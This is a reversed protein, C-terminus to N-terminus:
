NGFIDFLGIFFAQNINDLIRQVAGDKTILGMGGRMFMSIKEGFTTGDLSDKIINVLGKENAQKIYKAVYPVLLYVGLKDLRQRNKLIEETVFVAREHTSMMLGHVGHDYCFEIIEMIRSVDSFYAAKQNGTQSALHNVGFFQNHGLIIEDLM